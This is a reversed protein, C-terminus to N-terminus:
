LDDGTVRQVLADHDPRQFRLRGGVQGSLEHDLGSPALHAEERGQKKKKIETFEGIYWRRNNQLTQALIHADALEEVIRHQQLQGFLVHHQIVGHSASVGGGGNTM